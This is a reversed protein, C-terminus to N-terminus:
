VKGEWQAGRVRGGAFGGCVVVERVASIRGLVVFIGGGGGGCCGFAKKWVTSFLELGLEVELELGEDGRERGPHGGSGGGKVAVCRLACARLLLKLVVALSSLFLM